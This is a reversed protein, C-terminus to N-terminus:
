KKLLKALVTIYYVNTKYISGPIKNNNTSILQHMRWAKWNNSKKRGLANGLTLYQEEKPRKTCIRENKDFYAKCKIEVLADFGAESRKRAHFMIKKFTAGKRKM